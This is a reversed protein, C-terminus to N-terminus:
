SVEYGEEIKAPQWKREDRKWQTNEDHSENWRWRDQKGLMVHKTM